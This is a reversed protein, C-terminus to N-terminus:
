PRTAGYYDGAPMDTIPALKVQQGSRPAEVMQGQGAYLAVHYIGTDGGHSWFLLDGPQLDERAVPQSSTADYQEAATRPLQLEPWFAYQVLSSCDWGVTSTAVCRGGLYGNAGDCFGTSPGAPSGGGWSYPVGVESLARRLADPGLGTGSVQLVGGGDFQAMDTLITQVYSQTEPYPPVGRFQEVADWGANYGALALARVDGPIGSARAQGILSCMYRGQAMVADGIDYPSPNGNGEDDRGWVAWTGPTFQAPGEAGAKSVADTRFGSEQRLQAALLAPTLEPYQCQRAALYLWPQFEAPVGRVTEANASQGTSILAVLICGAAVVLALATAGAGLLLKKM